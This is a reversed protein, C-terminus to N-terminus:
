RLARASPSVESQSGATQFPSESEPGEGEDKNDASIIKNTESMAERLCLPLCLAPHFFVLAYVAAAMLVPEMGVFLYQNFTIPGAWGQNLEAVRYSSRWFILITALGLAAMFGKFQLSGRIRVLAVEQTLAVSVGLHRQRRRVQLAFDTCLAIFILLAFVQTALGAIMINDGTTLPQGNQLAVSAIIGGAAQLCLSAVDCSIFIRTYWKSPLRSNAEGYVVVIRELCLYIAASFFAPGITLCVVQALFADQDWQNDWSFVRAVYGVIEATLGLEM